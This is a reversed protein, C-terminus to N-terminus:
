VNRKRGKVVRDNGSLDKVVEIDVFGANKFLEPVSEGQDFGIEVILLGNYELYNVSEKVIKRYFYLGDEMGDLASIPEFESVEPQLKPIEDSPIYPPNSVIADFKGEINEFLDSRILEIDAELNRANEKAVLLAVKSMDSAYAKLTPCMKKMSIAICGSGTCLDLFKMDGKIDKLAEEVLTETDQRPILVNSNVSFKLGMFEQYGIIYQLPVRSAREKLVSEYERQQEETMEDSLHLYYYNRQIKCAYEMLYWSDLEPDMIHAEKLIKNGAQLAEQFTM